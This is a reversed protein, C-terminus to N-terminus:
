SMPHASSSCGIPTLVWTAENWIGMSHLLCCLISLVPADWLPRYGPQGMGLVVLVHSAWIQIMGYLDAHLHGWGLCWYSVPPLVPQQSNSCGMLTPVWTVGDWPAGPRPIGLAPADWLSQYVPSGMGLVLLIRRAARSAWLRLVGRPDAGSGGGRYRRPM